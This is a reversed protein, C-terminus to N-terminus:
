CHKAWPFVLGESLQTDNQGKLDAELDFHCSEAQSIWAHSRSLFIERYNSCSFEPPFFSCYIPVTLERHSDQRGAAAVMVQMMICGM